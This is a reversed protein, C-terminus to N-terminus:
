GRPDGSYEGENETENEDDFIEGENHKLNPNNPNEVEHKHEEHLHRPGLYAEIDVIHIDIFILFKFFKFRVNKM